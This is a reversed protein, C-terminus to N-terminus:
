SESLVESLAEGARDVLEQDFSQYIVHSTSTDEPSCSELAELALSAADKLRSNYELINQLHEIEARTLTLSSCKLYATKINSNFAENTKM